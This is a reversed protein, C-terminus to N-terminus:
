PFTARKTLPHPDIRRVEAPSTRLWIAGRTALALANPGVDIDAYTAIGDETVRWLKNMLVFWLAGDSALLLHHASLSYPNSIAKPLPALPAVTQLLRGTRDIRVVGQPGPIWLDGRRTLAYDDGYLREAPLRGAVDFRDEQIAGASLRIFDLHGGSVGSLYARGDGQQSLRPRYLAPVGFSRGSRLNVIHAVNGHGRTEFSFVEGDADSVIQSAEAGNDYSEHFTVSGDRGTLVYSGRNILVFSEDKRQAIPADADTVFREYSTGSQRWLKITQPRSGLVHIEPVCYGGEMSKWLIILANGHLDANLRLDRSCRDTPTQISASEAQLPVSPYLSALLAVILATQIVNDGVSSVGNQLM